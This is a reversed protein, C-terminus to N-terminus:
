EGLGELTIRLKDIALRLRSKVTGLPLGLEEAIVTHTKEEFYFIRLLRAQEPPLDEMAARVRENVLRAEVYADGQIPPDPVLAPDEPDVEPRRERRLVDIRKNRAITYIWTSLAARSPDFQHARQWVSLMSEQALEEAVDSAAGLRRLYAKIRPAYFAFVRAFAERDRARAVAEVDAELATRDQDVMQVAMIYRSTGSLAREVGSGLTELL